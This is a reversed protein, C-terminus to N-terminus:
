AQGSVARGSAQPRGDLWMRRQRAQGDGRGGTGWQAPMGATFARALMQQALQPTTAVDRDDPIGASRCRERANTWEEPLYLERAVLAHGLRSASAVCVGIQGHEVQGATGRYPRAVGASHRGKNLFGTEDIVMVGPPDSLQPRLDACLEDRVGDAAWDARAWVDQFGDPTAEGTEEALPWSNKREAPSLRGRLSTMVRQRTEARAVYPGLRRAIDTVYTTWGPVVSIEPETPATTSAMRQIM